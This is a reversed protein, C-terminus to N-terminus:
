SCLSLEQPKGTASAEPQVAAVIGFVLLLLGYLIVPGWLPATVWWWSWSIYGILKLVVFVLTLLGFFGIGGSSANQMTSVKREFNIFLSM